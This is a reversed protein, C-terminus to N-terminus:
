IRHMAEFLAYSQAEFRVNINASLEELKKKLAPFDCNAKSIDAFIIITFVGEIIKQTLDIININERALLTTIAALIGPRDYGFGTIVIRDPTRKKSIQNKNELSGLNKLVELLAAKLREETLDDGLEDAIKKAIEELKKDIPM